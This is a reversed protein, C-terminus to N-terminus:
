GLPKVMLLCPNGPWLDALEEVPLYGCGAWFRRTRAYHASPHSAGLTKVQVLRVRDARLADEAVSLLARGVGRRHWREDVAMVDVEASQPFHRRVTLVGVAEGDVRATWGALEAAASVYDRIAQEIGFWDPLSRLLRDVDAPAAGPTIQVDM